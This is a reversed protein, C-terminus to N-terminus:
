TNPDTLIPMLKDVAWLGCDMYWRIGEQNIAL